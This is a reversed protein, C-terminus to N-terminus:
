WEDICNWNLHRGARLLYTQDYEMDPWDIPIYYVSWISPFFREIQSRLSLGLNRDDCMTQTKQQPNYTKTLFHHYM